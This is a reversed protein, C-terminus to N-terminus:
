TSYITRYSYHTLGWRVDEQNVQGRDPVLGWTRSWGIHGSLVPRVGDSHVTAMNNGHVRAQM